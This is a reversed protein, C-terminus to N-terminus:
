INLNWTKLLQQEENTPYGGTAIKKKIQEVREKNRDRFVIEPIAKVAAIEGRKLDEITYPKPRMIGDFDTEWTNTIHRVMAVQDQDLQWHTKQVKNLLDVMLQSPKTECKSTSTFRVMPNLKQLKLTHYGGDTIKSGDKDPDLTWDM